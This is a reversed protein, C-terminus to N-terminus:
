KGGTGMPATDVRATDMPATGAQAGDDEEDSSAYDVLGIADESQDRAVSAGAGGGAAVGAVGAREAARSVAAADGEADAPLGVTAAGPIASQKSGQSGQSGLGVRGRKGGYAAACQQEALRTQEDLTFGQWWPPLTKRPTPPTHAPHPLSSVAPARFPHYRKTAQRGVWSVCSRPSSVLRM